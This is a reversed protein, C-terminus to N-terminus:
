QLGAASSLLEKMEQRDAESLLPQIVNEFIMRDKLTLQGVPEPLFWVGSNVSAIRRASSTSHDPGYIVIPTAQTRADARLNAITLSLNWQVCNSHILILECNLRSVAAEFGEIGSRFSRVDYDSDDLATHLDNLRDSDPDIIVAEPKTSGAAVASINHRLAEDSREIEPAALLIASTLARVRPDTSNLARNLTVAAISHESEMLGGTKLLKLCGAAAAANGVTLAEDLAKLITSHTEQGESSEDSGSIRLSQSSVSMRCCLLLAALRDDDSNISVADSCLKLARDANAPRDDNLQDSRFQGASDQNWFRQGARNLRSRIEAVLFQVAQEPTQPPKTRATLTLRNIAQDAAASVDAPVNKGFKWKLLDAIIEPDGTGGLLSVIAPRRDSDATELQQLLGSRLERAYRTLIRKSLRGSETDPDAALLAPVARSEATLIETIVRSHNSDPVDFSRVLEQLREDSPARVASAQNISLLLQRAEPQLEPVSNFRLFQGIGFDKRLLDLQEPSPNQDLISKLFFRATSPRELRGATVAASVLEAPTKPTFQFLQDDSPLQDAQKQFGSCIGANLMLSAILLTSFGSRLGPVSPCALTRLRDGFNTPAAM